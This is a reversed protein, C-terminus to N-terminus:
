DKVTELFSSVEEGRKSIYLRDYDLGGTSTDMRIRAVPSNSIIDYNIDPVAKLM